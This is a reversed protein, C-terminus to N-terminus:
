RIRRLADVRGEGRNTPKYFWALRALASTTYFSALDISSVFVYLVKPLYTGGVRGGGSAINSTNATNLATSGGLIGGSGSENYTPM